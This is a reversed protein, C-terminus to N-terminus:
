AGQTNGSPDVGRESMEKMENMKKEVFGEGIDLMNDVSEFFKKLTPTDVYQRAITSTVSFLLTQSLAFFNQVEKIFQLAEQPPPDEYM